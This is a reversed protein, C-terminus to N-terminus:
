DPLKAEFHAILNDRLTCAKDTDPEVIELANIILQLEEETVALKIEPM